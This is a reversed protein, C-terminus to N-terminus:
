SAPRVIRFTKDFVEGFAQLEASIAPPPKTFEAARTQLAKPDLRVLRGLEILAAIPERLDRNLNLLRRHFLAAEDASLAVPGTPAGGTLRRAPSDVISLTKELNSAFQELKLATKSFQEAVVGLVDPGNATDVEALARAGSVMFGLATLEKNLQLMEGHLFKASKPEITVPQASAAPGSYARKGLAATWASAAAPSAGLVQECHGIFERLKGAIKPPQEVLTTAMRKAVDPNYRILETAAVVLALCGNVDHRFASFNRALEEIEPVALTIPQSPSSMPAVIRILSASHL